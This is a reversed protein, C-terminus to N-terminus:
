RPNPVELIERRRDKVQAGGRVWADYIGWGKPILAKANGFRNPSNLLVIILRRPTVGKSGDPKPRILPAREVGVALCEGAARTTGTKLGIVSESVLENTNKVRYGREGDAGIVTM